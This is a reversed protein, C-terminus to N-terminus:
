VVDAFAPRVRDFWRLGLWAVFFTVVLRVGLGRWDPLRGWLLADRVQEITATLPNLRLVPRYAEPLASVPYFVPSAFLLATTVLGVTPATDRLFVGCASLFWSLAM